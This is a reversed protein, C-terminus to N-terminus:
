AAAESLVPEFDLNTIVGNTLTRIAALVQPDPYSREPDSFPLCITRVTEHSCVKLGAAETLLEATRRLTLNREYRWHAFKPRPHPNILM